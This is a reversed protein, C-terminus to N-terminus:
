TTRRNQQVLTDANYDTIKLHKVKHLDVQTHVLGFNHVLKFKEHGLQSIAM